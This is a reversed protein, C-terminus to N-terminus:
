RSDNPDGIPIWTIAASPAVVQGDDGASPEPGRTAGVMLIGRCVVCQPHERPDAHEAHPAMVTSTAWDVMRFAGALLQAWDVADGAAADDRAEHEPGEGPAPEGAQEDPPPEEGSYWWPRRADTM